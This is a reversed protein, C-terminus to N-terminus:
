IRVCSVQKCYFVLKGRPPFMGHIGSESLPVAGLLSATVFAKAQHVASEWEEGKALLATLAASFTCGTGHDSNRRVEVRPTSFLRLEGKHFVVDSANKEDSHGGKLVVSCGWREACLRTARIGDERSVIKMGTLVEAESLNPTIWSAMPLLRDCLTQVASDRLLKKGSTSVMVPDVVLAGHFSKLAECVAEIIEESFLMGTKVASVSLEKMVTQIQEKVASPSLPEIGTVELPNQFTVATIASTGYVRFYSFTRLDAQVGAGGGSDSGAITMALPFALKKQM